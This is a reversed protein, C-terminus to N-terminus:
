SLKNGKVEIGSRVSKNASLEGGSNAESLKGSRVSQNQSEAEESTSQIEDDFVEESEESSLGKMIMSNGKGM